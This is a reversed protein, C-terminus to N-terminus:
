RGFEKKKKEKKKLYYNTLDVLGTALWPMGFTYATLFGGAIMGTWWAPDKPNAKKINPPLGLDDILYRFSKAGITCLEPPNPINREKTTCLESSNPIAYKKPWLEILSPIIDMEFVIGRVLNRLSPPEKKSVHVEYKDFLKDIVTM